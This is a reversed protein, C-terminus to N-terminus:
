IEGTNDVTSTLIGRALRTTIRTGPTVASADTVAHGDPTTTLSFGRALVHEPSLAQLLAAKADVLRRATDIRAAIAAPIAKALNDLRMLQPAIVSQGTSAIAITARDLRASHNAILSKAAAPILAALYTLQQRNGSIRESVSRYIESALQELHTLEATARGILWEAAATPTKVRMNAVYDLVTVDREHGIGVIVPLPFNAVNAALEYNDFAALDSTSGGGRIIVTCDWRDSESAISELAGIVSPVTREGQLVAPFLRVEFRLNLRNNFLQNVFDGYGAAGAASIVAVRLAPRPWPVSRNLDLMGEAQLRALIENRRRVADGLTYSPDISSVNLSIGYAPHFTVSVRLLVKMGSALPQGTQSQFYASLRPWLSAWINARVRATTTGRSDKELLELYCHGGSLRMDSTEGVVWVNQLATNGALTQRVRELLQALSLAGSMQTESM